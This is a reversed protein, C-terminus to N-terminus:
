VFWIGVKGNVPGAPNIDLITYEILQKYSAISRFPNSWFVAPSIESV